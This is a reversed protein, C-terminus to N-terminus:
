IQHQSLPPLLTLRRVKVMKSTLLKLEEANKIELEIGQTFKYLGEFCESEQKVISILNNLGSTWLELIKEAKVFSPKKQMQEQIISYYYDLSRQGLSKMQDSAAQWAQKKRLVQRMYEEIEEQTQLELMKAKIQSFKPVSADSEPDCKVEQLSNDRSLSTSTGGKFRLPCSHPAAPYPPAQRSSPARPSGPLLPAPVQEFKSYHEDFIEKQAELTEQINAVLDECKDQYLKQLKDIALKVEYKQSNVHSMYSGINSTKQELIQENFTKPSTIICPESIYKVFEEWTMLPQLEQLKQSNNAVCKSCLFIGCKVDPKPSVLIVPSKHEPCIMQPFDAAPTKKGEPQLEQLQHMIQQQSSFM